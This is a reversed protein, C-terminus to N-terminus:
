PLITVTCETEAGGDQSVVAIRVTQKSTVKKAKLTGNTALTACAEGELQRNQCCLSRSWIAVRVIILFAQNGDVSGALPAVKFPSFPSGASGCKM